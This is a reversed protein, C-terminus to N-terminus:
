AGNVCTLIPEAPLAGPTIITSAGPLQRACALCAVVDVFAPALHQGDDRAVRGDALIVKEAQENESDGLQAGAHANPIRKTRRRQGQRKRERKEKENEGKQAMVERRAGVAKHKGQREVGQRRGQDQFMGCVWGPGHQRQM